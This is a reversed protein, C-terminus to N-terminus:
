IRAARITVSFDKLAQIGSSEANRCWAQLDSALQERSRNTSLWIQRLEERM